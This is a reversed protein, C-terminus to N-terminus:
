MEVIDLAHTATSVCGLLEAVEKLEKAGKGGM